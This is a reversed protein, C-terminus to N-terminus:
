PQDTLVVPIVALQVRRGEDDASLIYDVRQSPDSAPKTLRTAPHGAVAEHLSAIAEQARKAKIFVVLAAKSDRWVLYGLLQDLARAAAKAGGWFKCEGVFANRDGERILLDTKGRGNFLEGGASGEWYANLTMLLQDRLEEEHFKAATAPSRELSTAWHRIARLIDQYIEEDLAPEPAFAAQQRRTQLPVTKRRAPVPVPAQARATVPIGLAADLQRAQLLLRRSLAERHSELDANAWAALRDFDGQHREFGARLQDPTLVAGEYTLRLGSPTVTGRPPNLSFTSAQYSLLEGGGEIPVTVVVQLGASRVPRRDFADYGELQIENVKGQHAQDWRLTVPEPLHKALLSAVLLDPNESLLYDGDIGQLEALAADSWRALQERLEGAHM